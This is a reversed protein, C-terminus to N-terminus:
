RAHYDHMKIAWVPLAESLSFEEEDYGAAKVTPLLTNELQHAAGRRNPKWATIKRITERLYNSYFTGIDLDSKRCKQSPFWLDKKTPDNPYSEINIHSFAGQWHVGHISVNTPKCLNYISAGLSYLDSEHTHYQNPPFNELQQKTMAPPNWLLEPAWFCATGCAGCGQEYDDTVLGFDSIVLYPYKSTNESRSRMLINDPKMDRHLIPKWGKEPGSGRHKDNTIFSKGGWLYSLADCLGIIAHWVFREPVRAEDRTGLRQAYCKILDDLSGLNCFELYLSASTPHVMDPAIFANIYGALGGHKVRHTILIEVVGLGPKGKWTQLADKKFRKEVYLAGTAKLRVVHVGGNMGGLGGDGSDITHVIKYQDRIDKNNIHSHRSKELTGISNKTLTASERVARSVGLLQSNMVDENFRPNNQSREKTHTNYYYERPNPLSRDVKLHWPKPILGLMPHVYTTKKDPGRFYVRDNDDLFAEWGTPVNTMEPILPNIMKSPLRSCFFLNSVRITTDSFIFDTIRDINPTQLSTRLLSCFVFFIYTIM